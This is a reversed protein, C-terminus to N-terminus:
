KKILSLHWGFLERNLYLPQYRADCSYSELHSLWDTAKRSNWAASVQDSLRLRYYGLETLFFTIKDPTDISLNVFCSAFKALVDQFDEYVALEEAKLKLNRAVLLLERNATEFQRYATETGASVLALVCRKFETILAIFEPTSFKELLLLLKESQQSLTTDSHHIVAELRGSPKLLRMCSRIASVPEAYEIAFQSTILTLSEDAFPLAEIKTNAFFEIKSIEAKLAPFKQIIQNKDIEAADSALVRVQLGKSDAYQRLMIALAGNGTGVDLVEASDPLQSFINYWFDRLEGQYGSAMEGESFSNLSQARQWYKSWHQSM